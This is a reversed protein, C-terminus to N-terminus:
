ARSAAALGAAITDVDARIMGVTVRVHPEGGIQFPTGSLPM